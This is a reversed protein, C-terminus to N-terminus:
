TSPRLAEEAATLEAATADAARRKEDLEARLEAAIREGEEVAREAEGVESALRRAEARLANVRERGARREDIAPTRRRPAVAELPGFGVAQLEESLRGATLLAAVDPDIAAARLTQALRDLLGVTARPGLENRAATVLARLADRESATADALATVDGGGLASQQAERLRSGAEVLAGVDKPRTRALHNAAWAVVTPKRLARIEDAAEMQHAKRLRSALDNRAKTFEELPAGYLADLERDLDPVAALPPM